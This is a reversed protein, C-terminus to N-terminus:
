KLFRKGLFINGFISDSCSYLGFAYNDANNGSQQVLIDVHLSLVGGFDFGPM